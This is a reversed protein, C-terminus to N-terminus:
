IREERDLDLEWMRFEVGPIKTLDRLMDKESTV